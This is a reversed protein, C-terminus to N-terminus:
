ATVDIHDDHEVIAHGVILVLEDLVTSFDNFTDGLVPCQAIHRCDLHWQELILVTQSSNVYIQRHVINEGLVIGIEYISVTLYILPEM